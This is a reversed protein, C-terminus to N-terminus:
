SLAHPALMKSMLFSTFINKSKPLDPESSTDIKIDFEEPVDYPNISSYGILNKIEGQDAKEYLGKPDRARLSEIDACLYVLYFDPSLLKRVSRRVIDVPSIIPM